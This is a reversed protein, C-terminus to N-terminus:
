LSSSHWIYPPPASKRPGTFVYLTHLPMAPHWWKTPLEPTWKQGRNKTKFSLVPYGKASTKMYVYQITRVCVEHVHVAHKCVPSLLLVQFSRSICTLQCDEQPQGMWEEMFYVGQVHGNTLCRLFESGNSYKLRHSVNQFLQLIFPHLVRSGRARPM